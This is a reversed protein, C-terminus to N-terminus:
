DKEELQMMQMHESKGSDQKSSPLLLNIKIYAM